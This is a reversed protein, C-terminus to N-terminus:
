KQGGMYIIADGIKRTPSPGLNVARFFNFKTFRLRLQTGTFPNLLSPSATKGSRYVLVYGHSPGSLYKGRIQPVDLTYIKPTLLSFVDLESDHRGSHCEILLPFQLSLDSPATASRWRKYVSRFNIFDFILALKICIIRLINADLETWDVLSNKKSPNM